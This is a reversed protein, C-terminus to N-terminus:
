RVREVASVIAGIMRERIGQARREMPERVLATWAHRKGDKGVKVGQSGDPLEFRKSRIMYAYKADDSVKGVVDAGDIKAEQQLRSRSYGRPHDASRNAPRVPWLLRATTYVDRTVGGVVGLVASEAAQAAQRGWAELDGHIKADFM